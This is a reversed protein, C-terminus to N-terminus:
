DGVYEGMHLQGTLDELVMFKISDEFQEPDLAFVRVSALQEQAIHGRTSGYLPSWLHYFDSAYDHTGMPKFKTERKWKKPNVAETIATTNDEFLEHIISPNKKIETVLLNVCDATTIKTTM